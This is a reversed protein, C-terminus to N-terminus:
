ASRRPTHPQMSRYKLPYPATDPATDPIMDPDMNPVFDLITHLVSHLVSALILYPPTDEESIFPSYSDIGPTYREPGPSYTEPPASKPNLSAPSPNGTIRSCGVGRSRSYQCGSVRSSAPIRAIIGSKRPCPRESNPDPSGVPPNLRTGPAGTSVIAWSAASM